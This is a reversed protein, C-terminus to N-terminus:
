KIIKDSKHTDTMGLRRLGIKYFEPEIEVSISKRGLKKAVAGTTFTEAFPDFIVDLM